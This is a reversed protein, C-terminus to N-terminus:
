KQIMEELSFNEVPTYEEGNEALKGARDPFEILELKKARTLKKIRFELRSAASRNEATWLAELSIIRHSRTYRACKGSRSFHERMRRAIDAAIGTYLEGGECKIMYIYYM